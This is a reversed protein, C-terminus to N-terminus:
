RKNDRGRISMAFSLECLELCDLDELLNLMELRCMEGAGESCLGEFLRLRHGLNNELDGLVVGLWDVDDRGNTEEVTSERSSVAKPSYAIMEGNTSRELGLTSDDIAIVALPICRITM